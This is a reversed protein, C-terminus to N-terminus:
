VRGGVGREISLPHTPPPPRGAETAAGRPHGAAFLLGRRTDHHRPHTALSDAAASAMRPPPRDPSIGFGRRRRATRPRM